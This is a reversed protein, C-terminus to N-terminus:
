KRIIEKQAKAGARHSKSWSYDEGSPLKLGASVGSVGMGGVHGELESTMVVHRHGANRLEQCRLLAAAMQTASYDIKAPSGDPLLYYVVISM